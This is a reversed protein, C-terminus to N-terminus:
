VLKIDTKAKVRLPMSWIYSFGQGAQHEFQDEVDYTSLSYDYMAYQSDRSLIIINGKYLRLTISGTVRSQTDDIFADLAKRLPSFWLGYYVLKSYTQAVQAKYHLLDRDLVLKELEKHAYHLIAGAPSEYVGRTKIGVVRNELIDIRGVGHKSGIENLQTILEVPALSQDNLSIPIGQAFGIAIDCPENPALLPSTTIQYIADPPSSKIDDLTGCEISTGWLNTDISYPKDVSISIDINHKEAYEIEDNRSKMEWEIVPAIIRLTPDLATISSYFRVQDNGKGTAGHAVADAKEQHAIEVLRKAILPRGLPAALLYNDEYAANAKLAKFAYEGLYEERLDELYVKSAGIKQAKAEIAELLEFQGMNACFAIVEASYRDQLWKLAVSTDLGGSYALVIKM